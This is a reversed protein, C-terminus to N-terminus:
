IHVRGLDILVDVPFMGALKHSAYGQIFEACERTTKMINIMVSELPRIKNKWDGAVDIFSYIREMATVLEVIKQDRDLQARVVQRYIFLSPWECESTPSRV